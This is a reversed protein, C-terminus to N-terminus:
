QNAFITKEKQLSSLRLRLQQNENIISYSDKNLSEFSDTSVLLSDEPNLEFALRGMQYLYVYCTDILFSRPNAVM